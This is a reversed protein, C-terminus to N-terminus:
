GFRKKLWRRPWTPRELIKLIQVSTEEAVGTENELRTTEQENM